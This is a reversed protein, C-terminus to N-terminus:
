FIVPIVSFSPAQRSWWHMKDRWCTELLSYVALDKECSAWQCWRCTTDSRGVFTMTPTSAAHTTVNKLEQFFFGDKIPLFHDGSRSSPATQHKTSATSIPFSGHQQTPESPVQASGQPALCSARPILVRPLCLIGSHPALVSVSLNMQDTMNLSM